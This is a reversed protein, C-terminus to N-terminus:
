RPVGRGEVAVRTVGTEASRARQGGQKRKNSRVSSMAGLNVPGSKGSWTTFPLGGSLDVATSSRSPSM